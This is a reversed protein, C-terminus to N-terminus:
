GSTRGGSRRSGKGGGKNGGGGRSTKAPSSGGTKIDQGPDEVRGGSSIKRGQNSTRGPLGDQTEEANNAPQTNRGVGLRTTASETRKAM